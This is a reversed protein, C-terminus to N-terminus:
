RQVNELLPIRTALDVFLLELLSLAIQGLLLLWVCGPMRAAHATWGTQLLSVFHIPLTPEPDSQPHNEDDNRSPECEAIAAHAVPRPMAPPPHAGPVAAITCIATLTPIAHSGSHHPARHGALSPAHAPEVPHHARVARPH